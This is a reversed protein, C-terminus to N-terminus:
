PLGLEKKVDEYFKEKNSVNEKKLKAFIAAARASKEKEGLRNYAQILQYYAEGDTPEIRIASELEAKARDFNKLSLCWKAQDTHALATRSGPGNSQRAACPSAAGFSLFGVVLVHNKLIQHRVM